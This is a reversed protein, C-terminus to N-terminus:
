QLLGSLLALAAFGGAFATTSIWRPPEPEDGQPIVDEVTALLLIGVFVALAASHVTSSAGRLVLYGLGTSLVAPVLMSASLALRRRRPMGDDRFNSTAAFGGPINAVSQTMAFLFGLQSEIATGTGVMLGDSTLDTAVALYVMWAGVSGRGPRHRFSGWAGAILVSIGAGLLFALTILWISSTTLLRPMVDISVLAIAIGATAHLSAGILWKPTRISEALLCGVIIGAAPLLAFGLATGFAPM